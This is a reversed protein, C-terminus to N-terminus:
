GSGALRTAHRRATNQSVKLVTALEQATVPKGAKRLAEIVAGISVKAVFKRSPKAAAAPRGHGLGLFALTFALLGVSVLGALGLDIVDATVGIKAALKTEIKPVELKALETEATALRTRADATATALRTRADAANKALQKRESKTKAAPATASAANREAEIARDLEGKLREVRAKATAHSQNETKVLRAREERVSLIREAM